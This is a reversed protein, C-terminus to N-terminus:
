SEHSTEFLKRKYKEPNNAYDTLSVGIDYIGEIFDKFNRKDYRVLGLGPRSDFDMEYIAEFILTRNKPSLSSFSNWDIKLRRYIELRRIEFFTGDSKVLAVRSRIQSEHHFEHTEVIDLVKLLEEFTKKKTTIAKVDSIGFSLIIEALRRFKIVYRAIDRNHTNEMASLVATKLDDLQESLAMVRKEEAKGIRQEQLLRQFLGAWQKRLHHEIDEISTFSVVANGESRQELMYIFEFIYKATEPKDISPFSITDVLEVNKRYLEYNHKVKEEVFAFVPISSEIAKLVELQTVSMTEASELSTVDFSSNFLKESDIHKLAEPIASGGFRSGILVIVMDSNPIEQVCSTHTHKRPDYLVDSYESMIPEYGLLVLFHRIRERAIAFDYCTSSVFVKPVAM